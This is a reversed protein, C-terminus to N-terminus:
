AHAVAKVTYPELKTDDALYLPHKPHGDKTTGLCLMRIGAAALEAAVLDGRGLTEPRDKHGAGHTGWATIIPLGDDHAAHVASLLHLGGLPGVPDPHKWLEKPKTSRLAFLNVIRLGGARPAFRHTFKRIKKVTNDDTFADATSPNLCVWLLNPGHGWRRTLEYRYAGDPSFIAYDRGQDHRRSELRTEAATRTVLTDPM